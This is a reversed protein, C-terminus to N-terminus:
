NPLNAGSNMRTHSKTALYTGEDTLSNSLHFLIKELIRIVMLTKFNM